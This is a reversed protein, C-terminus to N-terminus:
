KKQSKYYDYAEEMQQYFAEGKARIIANKVFRILPIKKEKGLACAANCIDWRDYNWAEFGMEKNKTVRIPYLHCSIPKNSDITGEQFAKEISCEAIGTDKEYQLYICAGDEHCSTAWTKPKKEYVYGPNKTLFIRSREPLYSLIQGNIKDLIKLESEDLPAGYDGDWCCAGKCKELHCFFTESLIEESILVDDIVFM